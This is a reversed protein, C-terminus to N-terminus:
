GAGAAVLSRAYGRGGTRVRWERQGVTLPGRRLTFTKRTVRGQADRITFRLRAIRRRPEPLGVQVQEFPELARRIPAGQLSRIRAGELSLRCTTRCHAVLSLRGQQSLAWTIRPAPSRSSAVGYPLLAWGPHTERTFAVIGPQATWVPASGVRTAVTAGEFTGDAGPRAIFWESRYGYVLRASGDAWTFLHAECSGGCAQQAVPGIRVRKSGDAVLVAPDVPLPPAPVFAAGPAPRVVRRQDWSVSEAGDVVDASLGRTSEETAPGLDQPASFAGGPDRVVATVRGEDGLREGMAALVVTGTEDHALDFAVFLDMVKQPPALAGDRTWTRVWLEPGESWAALGGGHELRALRVAEARENIGFAHWRGTADAFHVEDTTILAPAHAPGSSAVRVAPDNAKPPLRIADGFQAGAQAPAALLAAMVILCRLGNRM